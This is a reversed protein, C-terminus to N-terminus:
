QAANERLGKTRLSLKTEGEEFPLGSGGHPGNFDGNGERMPHERGGNAMAKRVFEDRQRGAAESADSGRRSHGGLSSADDGTVMGFGKVRGAWLGRVGGRKREPVEDGGASCVYLLYKLNPLTHRIDVVKLSQSACLAEVDKNLLFWAYDFRFHASSGSGGRPVYLPFERQPDPLQSIDDRISSRSGFARIPYPLPVSLYYQLSDALHAVYGLAASLADESLGASKTASDYTTNPLPLNCIQFSLPPGLLVPTINYIRSLDECIRRRQGHIDSKAKALLTRSQALKETANEVDNAVKEQTARGQAIAKGRAAISEKLETNRKRALAIAKRQQILYKNTLSLADEAEPVENETEHTLLDNIQQTLLERTALADQISNDLTALRMLANYSSTPAPISHKPPAPKGTLELSYIGDVMHFALSNPPFHVSQLTGLWNLARLDVTDERLLSWTDHRKAWVKITVQASHTISSDLESLEFHRFNFNTAREEVESIYIPEEEDEVHLSFFADALKSDYVDEFKRQRIAPTVNALNTSRRRGAPPRLDESSLAHHLHPTTTRLSELKAPSKNNLDADDLTRGRPRSFVLNRLAIGRLHRLKRNQPLLLPRTTETSM